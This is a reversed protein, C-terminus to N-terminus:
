EIKQVVQLECLPRRELQPRAIAYQSIREWAKTVHTFHEFLSVLFPVNQSCSNRGLGSNQSLVQSLSIAAANLQMTQGLPVIQFRFNASICNQAVLKWPWKTNLNEFKSLDKPWLVSLSASTFYSGYTRNDRHDLPNSIHMCFCPKQSQRDCDIVAV